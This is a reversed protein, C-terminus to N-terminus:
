KGLNQAFHSAVNWPQNAADTYNVSRPVMHLDAVDTIAKTRNEHPISVRVGKLAARLSDLDAATLTTKYHNIGCFAQMFDAVSMDPRYFATAATSVNLLPRGMGHRLTFFFGRHCVLGFGLNITNRDQTSFFKNDGLRFTSVAQGAGPNRTAHGVIINIAEVVSMGTAGKPELPLDVVDGSCASILKNIPITGVYRLQVNLYAAPVNQRAPRIMLQINESNVNANGTNGDQEPFLPKWAVIKEMGDTAYIRGASRLTTSNGIAMQMLEERRAAAPVREEDAQEATIIGDMKYEFLDQTPLEIVFHNTYVV